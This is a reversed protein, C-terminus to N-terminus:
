CLLVVTVAPMGFFQESYGSLSSCEIFNWSSCTQQLIEQSTWCPHPACGQWAATQMVASLFCFLFFVFGVEKQSCTKPWFKLLGRIVQILFVVLNFCLVNKNCIQYSLPSFFLRNRGWLNLLFQILSFAIGRFYIDWKFIERAKTVWEWQVLYVSLMSIDDFIGFHLENGQLCVALVKVQERRVWVGCLM